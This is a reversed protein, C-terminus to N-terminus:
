KYWGTSPMKPLQQNESYNIIQSKQPPNRKCHTKTSPLQPPIQLPFHLPSFCIPAIVSGHDHPTPSSPSPHLLFFFHHLWPFPLFFLTSSILEFHFCDTAQYISAGSQAVCDTSLIRVIALFVSGWNAYKRLGEKFPYYSAFTDLKKKKKILSKSKEYPFYYIKRNFVNGEM